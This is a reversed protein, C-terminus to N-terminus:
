RPIREESAGYKIPMVIEVETGAVKGEADHLERFDLSYDKKTMRAFLKLRDQTIEMGRSVHDRPRGVKAAKSAEIGIGNDRVIVKLYDGELRSVLVEIKGGSVLPKIGHEISNEVFPQLLMPPIKADMAEVEPDVEIICHELKEPFRVRALSMFLELRKLEEEVSIFDSKTSELNMRVLKAFSSLFQDAAKKDQRHIFLKIANLANFTFHPNMMAYLAQHELQLKEATDRIMQEEQQHRKRQTVIRYVLYAAASILLTMLLLFWWRQYFPSLITFTFSAAQDFNWTDGEKKATVFFTYTGPLLNLYSVATRKTSSTSDWGEDDLGQLYYAYEVLQPSTLSIGIFSFDIRNQSFPLALNIPLGHDDVRVGDSQRWDAQNEVEVRTIYVKLPPGTGNREQFRSKRIAGEATGIWIYGGQLDVKLANANCEMSPLGDRLSFHDLSPKSPSTASIQQVDLRYAGDETGIWLYRDGEIELGIITNAGDNDSTHVRHAVGDKVWALGVASGVWLRGFPDHELAIVTPGILSSDASFVQFQRGDVGKCLALATGVWLEQGKMGFNLSYVVNSPLGDATTYQSVIRDKDMRFLGNDTGIWMIGKADEGLVYAANCKLGQEQGYVVFSQRDEEWRSLTGNYSAFWFRGAEDEYSYCIDNGGLNSNDTNIQRLIEGEEGIINIGRDRTSIWVDGNRAILFSKAQNSSLGEEMTYSQFVGPTIKRAGGGDTGFWVNGEEDTLASRMHFDLSNDLKVLPKIEGEANMYLIGKRTGMWIQGAKDRTFCYVADDAGEHATPRFHTLFRGNWLYAGRTTGIWLANRETEYLLAHVDAQALQGPLWPRIEMRSSEDSPDCVYLGKDTAIFVEGSPTMVLDQIRRGVLLAHQDFDPQILMTPGKVPLWQIGRSQTGLWLHGQTDPMLSLIPEEVLGNTDRLHVYHEGNYVTLGSQTAFFLRGSTSDEWMDTLFAGHLSDKPLAVFDRGDFRCPGRHTGLWLYGKSDQLM